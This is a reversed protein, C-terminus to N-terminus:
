GEYDMCKIIDMSSDNNSHYRHPYDKLGIIDEKMM